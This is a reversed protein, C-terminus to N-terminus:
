YLTDFEVCEYFREEIEEFTQNQKSLIWMIKTIVAELTMDKAELIKFQSKLKQGVEYVGVNSGEYTVQTTMIVIKEEPPYQQMLEFLKAELSEPIGGSGFSEIIICDYYSFIAELIYSSIGPTLKLLFVKEDLTDHFKVTKLSKNEKVYRIIRGDHMQALYPYNISEFAAFSKTKTKKARTGHIVKGDFVISVGCSDPDAAYLISDRLNAKADTIESGIPKQAGTLVVPKPSDQILYSLAAATYALTDTGHAIVFGDYLSYNEKIAEAMMLWHQPTVNTSDLNCVAKTTLEFDDGIEPLFSLLEESSLAPILGHPTKVSAITGGTTIILLKKM